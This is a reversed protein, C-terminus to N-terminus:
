AIMKLVQEEESVLENNIVYLVLKENNNKLKGELILQYM